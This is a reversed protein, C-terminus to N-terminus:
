KGEMDPQGGRLAGAGMRIILMFMATTHATDNKKKFALSSESTFRRVWRKRRPQGFGSKPSLFPSRNWLNGIRAVPPFM